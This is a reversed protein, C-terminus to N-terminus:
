DVAIGLKRLEAGVSAMAASHEDLDDTPIEHEEYSAYFGLVFAARAQMEYEEVCPPAHKRWAVDLYTSVYSQAFNGASWARILTDNITM